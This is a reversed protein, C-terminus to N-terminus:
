EINRIILGHDDLTCAAMVRITRTPSHAEGVGIWLAAWTPLM